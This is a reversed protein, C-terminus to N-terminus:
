VSMVMDRFCWLYSARRWTGYLSMFDAVVPADSSVEAM